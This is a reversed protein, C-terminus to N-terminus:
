AIPNTFLTGSVGAALEAVGYDIVWGNIRENTPDYLQKVRMEEKWYIWQITSYSRSGVPAGDLAGPRAMMVAVTPGWIYSRNTTAESDGTSAAQALESVRVADEVVIEIGAYRRPLGWLENVNGGPEEQEARAIPSERVYNQIEPSQGAEVAVAPGMVVRLDSPKVKANTYLNINQAAALFSRKIANYKPSSPDDSAGKWSGRGGNFTNVDGVFGTPWNGSTSLKTYVEWTRRTMCQSLAESMQTLKPRWLTATEESVDDVTWPHANRQCVYGATDFRSLNWLGTPIDAGPAWRTTELDRVRVAQDRSIKAYIGSPEKSPVYQIYNVLKFEAPTRTFAIMQGISNQPVYGTTPGSARLTM